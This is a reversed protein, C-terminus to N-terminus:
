RLLEEEAGDVEDQSTACVADREMARGGLVGEIEGMVNM